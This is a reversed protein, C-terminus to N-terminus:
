LERSKHHFLHDSCSNMVWHRVRCHSEVVKEGELEVFVLWVFNLLPHHIEGLLM